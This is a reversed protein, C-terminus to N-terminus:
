PFVGNNRIENHAIPCDEIFKYQGLANTRAIQCSDNLSPLKRERFVFQILCSILIFFWVSSIPAMKCFTYM